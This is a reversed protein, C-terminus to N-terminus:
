FQYVVGVGFEGKTTAYAGVHLDFLVRRFVQGTYEDSNLSRSVGVIWEKKVPTVSRESSRKTDKQRTQREKIKTVKTGDKKEIIVVDRDIVEVLKVVEKTKVVVKKPGFFYQLGMLSIILLVIAVNKRNLM